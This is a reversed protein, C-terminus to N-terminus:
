DTRRRRRGVFGALSLLAISAPAPTIIVNDIAFNFYLQNDVEAFRLWVTQGALGSVDIAQHEYGGSFPGSDLTLLNMVVDAPDTSFPDSGPVLLDVRAHQNPSDTQDLTGNNFWVEALNVWWMDFEVVGGSPVVFEQFFVHAGPGTQDTVAQFKGDTPTPTFEGGALRIGGPLVLWNGSGNDFVSWGTFDGSEFSGNDLIGGHAPTLTFGVAVLLACPFSVQKCKTWDRM